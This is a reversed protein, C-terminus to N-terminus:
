RQGGTMRSRAREGLRRSSETIGVPVYRSTSAATTAASLNRGERLDKARRELREVLQRESWGDRVGWETLSKVTADAYIVAMRRAVAADRYGSVAVHAEVVRERANQVATSGGALPASERAGGDPLHRRIAALARAEVLSDVKDPEVMGFAVGFAVAQEPSANHDTLDRLVSRAGATTLGAARLDAELAAPSRGAIGAVSEMFSSSAATESLFPESGGRIEAVTRDLMDRYDSM